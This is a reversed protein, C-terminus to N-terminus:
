EQKKLTRYHLHLMQMLDELVKGHELLYLNTNYKKALFCSLVEQTHLQSVDIGLKAESLYCFSVALVFVLLIHKM